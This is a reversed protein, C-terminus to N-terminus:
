IIKAGSSECQIIEVKLYNARQVEYMYKVYDSM